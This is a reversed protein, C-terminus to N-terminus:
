LSARSCKMWPLSEIVTILFCAGLSRMATIQWASVCIIGRRKQAACHVGSLYFRIFSLGSPRTELHALGFSDSDMYAYKSDKVQAKVGQKIGLSDRIGYFEDLGHGHITDYVFACGSCCFLRNPDQTNFTEGLLGQPVSLGCHICTAKPVIADKHDPNARDM